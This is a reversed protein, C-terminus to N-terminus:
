QSKWQEFAKRVAEKEEEKQSKSYIRVHMEAWDTPFLRSVDKEDIPNAYNINDKSYFNVYKMPNETGRGYNLNAVDIEFPEQGKKVHMIQRVDEEVTEKKYTESGFPKKGVLQYLDRNLVRLLLEKSTKLEPNPDNLIRFLVEDTMLSFAAMDDIAESMKKLSGGTGIFTIHKDAAVLAEAIMMEVSEVTKHQYARRHLQYRTQFMELLNHYEKDRFCIQWEGNVNIVRSFAICRKYDFSNGIGLMHCDRAFYDWKDVDIENRKNNVVEYLFVKKRENEDMSGLVTTKLWESYSQEQEETRKGLIMEQILTIEKENIGYNKFEDALAPNNKIMHAIMDKSGEEHKWKRAEVLRSIVRKDFVHSFPGHGMDHCLGAILVCLIDKQSIGLDPQREKIAKVLEGALFSVGISHEFRNHSAGPYVFYSVGLQKVFRLRQFEKTNIIKVCLPHVEVVGHIPDNFFVKNNDARDSSGTDTQDVVKEGEKKSSAAEENRGQSDM